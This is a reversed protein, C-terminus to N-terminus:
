KNRKILLLYFIFLISLVFTFFALGVFAKIFFLVASFVVSGIYLLVCLLILVAFIRLMNKM